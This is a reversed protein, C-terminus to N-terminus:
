KFSRLHEHMADCKCKLHTNIINFDHTSTPNSQSSGVINKSKCTVHEHMHVM